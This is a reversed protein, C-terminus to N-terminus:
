FSSQGERGEKQEERRLSVPDSKTTGIEVPILCNVGGDLWLRVLNGIRGDSDVIVTGVGHRRLLGTIRQYRPLLHRRFHDPSLLPGQRYCMNTFAGHAEERLGHPSTYRPILVPLREFVPQM